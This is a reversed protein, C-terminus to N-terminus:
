AGSLASVRRQMRLTPSPSERPQRLARTAAPSAGLDAIEAREAFRYAGGELLWDPCFILATTGVPAAAM